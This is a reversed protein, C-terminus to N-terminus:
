LADTIASWGYRGEVVKSGKLHSKQQLNWELVEVDMETSLDLKQWLDGSDIKVCCRRAVMAFTSPRTENVSM